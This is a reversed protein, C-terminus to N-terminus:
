KNLEVMKDLVEKFSDLIHRDTQYYRFLFHLADHTQKNLAIFNEEMLKDYNEASMDLHHCNYGKRLPKGTIFDKKDQKEAIKIRFTKWEKTARLKVKKESAKMYYKTLM